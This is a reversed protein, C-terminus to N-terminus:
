STICYRTLLISNITSYGNFVKQIPQVFIKIDKNKAKAKCMKSLIEQKEIQSKLLKTKAKERLFKLTRALISKAFKIEGSLIFYVLELTRIEVDYILYFKKNLNRTATQLQKFAETLENNILFYKTYTISTIQVAESEGSELFRNLDNDLIKKADAMRNTIMYLEALQSLLNPQYYFYPNRTEAYTEFKLIAQEFENLQFLIEGYFGNIANSFDNPLLRLLDPKNIIQDFLKKAADLNAEVWYHYLAKCFFTTAMLTNDKFKLAGAELQQISKLFM